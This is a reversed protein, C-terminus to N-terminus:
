LIFCGREYMVYMPYKKSVTVWRSKIDFIKNLQNKGLGFYKKLAYEVQANSGAQPFFTLSQIENMITRALKNENPIVLHNTIVITIDLKRGVEMIDAM